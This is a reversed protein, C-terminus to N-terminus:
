ARRLSYQLGTVAFNVEGGANDIYIELYSNILSGFTEAYKWLEETRITVSEGAAIEYKEIDIAYNGYM